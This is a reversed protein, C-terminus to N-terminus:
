DEEVEPRAMASVDAGLDELSDHLVQVIYKPNHVFAGPDKTVYQYNYAARLLRPTWTAYNGEGEDIAGNANADAFFYPYSAGNYVIAGGAKETAYKQIAAYLAEQM